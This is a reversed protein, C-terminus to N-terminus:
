INLIFIIIDDLLFQIELNYAIEMDTLNLNVQISLYNFNSFYFIMFFLLFYFSYFFYFILRFYHYKTDFEFLYIFLICFFIM